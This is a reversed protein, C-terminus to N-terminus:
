KSDIRAVPDWGPQRSAELSARCRERYFEAIRDGPFRVLCREFARAAREVDRDFWAAVGEDFDSKVSEKAQRVDVPDGDLVEYLDVPLSKGKVRVRDVWRIHFGADPGLAQYTTGTILMAACYRSTLGEIRSALNVTDGIVTGDIRDQGGVMGLMLSGTNVGVGIHIPARGQTRREENFSQLLQLMDIGARVADTASLPFLAMIADGIYKDIFGQNRAIAPVMRRLYDNIFLFNEDPTMQESLTTFSRIDSFLVSMELQANNGLQVAVISEKDLLRLFEVPVFRHLARNIRTLEESLREVSSFANAFRLSLMFSQVFIFIFLGAPFIFPLNVIENASMVDLVFALLIVLLGGLFLASSEEKRLIGRVVRHAAVLFVLLAILQFPQILRTFLPPASILCTAAWVLGAIQFSKPLWAPKVDFLADTFWIFVPMGLYVTLYEMRSLVTWDLAPLVDLVLREGTLVTRFSVILCLIGFYLNGPDRRRIAYLGLHYLGMICLAGALFMEFSILGERVKRVRSEEGFLFQSWLGGNRHLYNSVQVVIELERSTPSFTGFRTHYAARYDEPTTAVKGVTLVPAGNVWMKYATSQDRARIALVPPEGIGSTTGTSDRIAMSEPLRVRLRFTAYGYPSVRASAPEQLNWSGPLTMFRPSPVAAGRHFDGPELLQGWYFEWQGALPVPGAAPTWRTLDLIGVHALPPSPEGRAVGLVTLLLWTVVVSCNLGWSNRWRKRM